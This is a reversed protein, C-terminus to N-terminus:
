YSGAAASRSGRLSKLDRSAPSEPDLRVSERWEEIAAADRGESHLAQGLKWHAQAAGPENGEAEQGLYTRLYREARAPDHHRDLLREAARYQPALDDPVEKSAEALIGELASWDQRDVYVEALVAYAEVRSRDLLLAQGAATEATGPNTHEPSLFFQALAILARYSPPQAAAAQRLAAETAGPQKHFGAIRAKALFGEAVDMEAIHDAIEAAKRQDGGVVGPALLHFEILDRLAQADRPDLLIATDIEKRFRRALFMQQVMNAHQATVGLVEAYQRHYKATNGDLAVAKEALSQPTIHDGFANRIQSLLYNALPDNPAELMRMEVLARAQKWHGAVILKEARTPQALCGLPLWVALAAIAAQAGRGRAYIKRYHEV